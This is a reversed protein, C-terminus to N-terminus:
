QYVRVYDVEMRQPWIDQDIGKAGGWDGGVALNLLLYMKNDFPWADYGTHENAISFYVKGDVSIKISDATWDLGYVHFKESCDKVIITDTKQTHIVHNYKKCHTSGHIYGQHFGVHEMIDIEGDDPWEFTDKSALTWIAPWTGIGKPLRARVEIRGYQWDGKGKSILRASTYDNNKWKEKRAEIVLNGNEVRANELRKSTYYELEHNGWGNGGEDYNWKSSDPLGTYNFEDAWVLKMAKKERNIFSLAIVAILITTVLLALYGLINKM